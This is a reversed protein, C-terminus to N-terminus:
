GIIEGSEFSRWYTKTSHDNTFYGIFLTQNSEVIQYIPLMKIDDDFFEYYTYMVILDNDGVMKVQDTKNVILFMSFIYSNQNIYRHIESPAEHKGHGEHHTQSQPKYTVAVMSNGYCSSVIVLLNCLLRYEFNSIKHGYSSIAKTVTHCIDNHDLLGLEVWAAHNNGKKRIICLLKRKFDEYQSQMDEMLAFISTHSQTTRSQTTLLIAFFFDNKECDLTMRRCTPRTM